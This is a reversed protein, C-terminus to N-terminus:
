DVRKGVPENTDLFTWASMLYDSRYGNAYLIGDPTKSVNDIVEEFRDDRDVIWRGRLQERDEWTFPVYKPEPADYVQCYFYCFGDDRHWPVESRDWYILKDVVWDQYHEDRFRAVMPPEAIADEPTADRWYREIYNNEKSGMVSVKVVAVM